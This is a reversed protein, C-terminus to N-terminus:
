ILISRKSMIILMIATFSCFYKGNGDEKGKDERAEIGLGFARFFNLKVTKLYIQLSIFINITLQENNGQLGSSSDSMLEQGRWM